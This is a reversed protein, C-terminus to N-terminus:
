AVKQSRQELFAAVDYLWRRTPTQVARILGKRRWNALTQDSCGLLRAAPGAPLQSMIQKAENTMNRRRRRLDGVLLIPPRAAERVRVHAARIDSIDRGV